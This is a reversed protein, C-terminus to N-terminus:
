AGAALRSGSPAPSAARATPTTAAAPQPAETSPPPQWTGSDIEAIQRDLVSIVYRSFPGLHLYFAALTGVTDLARPNSWACACFARLFHGLAGPQRAAIRSVLRWLLALDRRGIGFLRRRPPDTSASRDLAPRDLLRALTRVRAYYSRPRYVRALITRYDWLIDRRPRATVFNLGSTCQDGADEAAGRRIRYSPPFL